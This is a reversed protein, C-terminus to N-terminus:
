PFLDALEGGLVARIRARDEATGWHGRTMLSVTQEHLGAREALERNSLGARDRADRLATKSAM